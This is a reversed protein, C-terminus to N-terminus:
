ICPIEEKSDSQHRAARVLEALDLLHGPRFARRSWRIGPSFEVGTFYGIERYVCYATRCPVVWNEGHRIWAEVNVPVPFEVQLCAGRPSIDELVAPATRMWGAKDKWELKVIDACLSRIECRKETM